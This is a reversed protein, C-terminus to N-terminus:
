DWGNLYNIFNDLTAEEFVHPSLTNEYQDSDVWMDHVSERNYTYLEDNHHTM